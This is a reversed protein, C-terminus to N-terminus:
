TVNEGQRADIGALVVGSPVSTKHIVRRQAWVEPVLDQLETVTTRGVHEKDRRLLDAGATFEQEIKLNCGVPVGWGRDVM